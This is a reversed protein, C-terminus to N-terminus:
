AAPLAHQQLMFYLKESTKSKKMGTSVSWETLFRDVIKRFFRDETQSLNGRRKQRAWLDRVVKAIMQPSAKAEVRRLRALRKQFNPSMKRSPRELVKIAEAFAEPPAVTRIIDSTVPVWIVSNELEIRYYTTESKNGIAKEEIAVIQGIGYNNHVIWDDRSYMFDVNIEIM